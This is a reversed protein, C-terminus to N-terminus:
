TASYEPSRSVAIQRPSRSGRILVTASEASREASSAPWNWVRGLLVTM